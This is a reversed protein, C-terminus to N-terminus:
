PRRNEAKVPTVFRICVLGAVACAGATWHRAAAELLQSGGYSLLSGASMGLALFGYNVGRM